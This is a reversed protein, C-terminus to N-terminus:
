FSYTLQADADMERSRVSSATLDVTKGEPHWAKRVKMSQVRLSPAM